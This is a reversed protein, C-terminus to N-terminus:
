LMTEPPPAPWEIGEVAKDVIAGAKPDAKRLGEVLRRANDGSDQFLSAQRANTFAGMGGGKGKEAKAAEAERIKTQTDRVKGAVEELEALNANASAEDTIKRLVQILSKTDINLQEYRNSPDDMGLHCGALVILGCVLVALRRGNVVANM